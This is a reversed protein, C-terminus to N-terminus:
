LLKNGYPTVLSHFADKAQIMDVIEAPTKNKTMYLSHLYLIDRTSFGRNSYNLAERIESPLEDFARYQATRMLPSKTATTM